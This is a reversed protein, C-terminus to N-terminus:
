MRRHLCRQAFLATYSEGPRIVEFDGISVQKLEGSIAMRDGDFGAVYKGLAFDEPSAAVRETMAPDFNRYLM